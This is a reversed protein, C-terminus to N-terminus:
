WLFEQQRSSRVSSHNNCTRPGFFKDYRCVVKGMQLINCFGFLNEEREKVIVLQVVFLLNRSNNERWCLKGVDRVSGFM